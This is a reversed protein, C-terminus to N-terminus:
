RGSKAEKITKLQELYPSLNQNFPRIPRYNCYNLFKIVWYVYYKIKDQRILGTRSLFNKFDKKQRIIM